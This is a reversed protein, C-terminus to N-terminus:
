DVFLAKRMKKIFIDKSFLQARCECSEKMMLARKESLHEVAKIIKEETLEQTLLVGTEGDVISEKLGGEDVGIVPKGAAMAEVPSMGFDEDIPLYIAARANGILEKLQSDTLWGTFYINSAGDALRRLKEMQPGGSAIILKQNPMKLFARVIFDVRKSPVLRALSIFYDGSGIWKIGATDVPPYIISADINLYKKLREKVNLSNAYVVDMKSISKEYENKLYNLLIHWFPRTYLPIRDIYEERLDYIFRPPTHCYYIRHGQLQNNVAFPSYFGSYCVVEANKLFQSRYRFNVIAEPIRGLIRTQFSTLEAINIKKLLDLSNAEPFVRSVVLQFEPLKTVLDLSLREAGGAFQMYDYLFFKGSSLPSM